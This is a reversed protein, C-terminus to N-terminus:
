TGSPRCRLKIYLEQPDSQVMVEIDTVELKTEILSLNPAVSQVIVDGSVNGRPSPYLVVGIHGDVAWPPEQQYCQHPDNPDLEDDPVLM